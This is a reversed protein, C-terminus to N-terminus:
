TNGDTVESNEGQSSMMGAGLLGGASFLAQGKKVTEKVKPTLKIALQPFDDLESSRNGKMMTVTGISSNDIKGVVKNIVKPLVKDYYTKLGQNNWRKAHIIGASFAISDYGEEEAKAMLRKITLGTWKNTDTVFPAKPIDSFMESHTTHLKQMIDIVDKTEDVGIDLQKGDKYIKGQAKADGFMNYLVHYTNKTPEFGKARVLFYDGYPVQEGDILITYNNLTKISKSTLDDIKSQIIKAENETPKFGGQRGQQGWDSQIEEVFFVKSGDDAIRDTHRISALINADEYHATEYFDGEKSNDLILKTETYNEGTEGQDVTYDKWRAGDFYANIDGNEQAHMEAQIEAENFSYIGVDEGTVNDSTDLRNQWNKSDERTRFISYGVSDNGTITYGTNDDTYIRIPDAYYEDLAEQMARAETMPPDLDTKMENFDDMIESTRNTFYDDGYAEDITMTSLLQYGGNNVDDEPHLGEKRLDKIYNDDRDAGSRSNYFDMEKVTEDDMSTEEVVRIRNDNIHQEIETKTIKDKSLVEDLGLWDLEDQKVGAKLLMGKFQQGSGKEQKLKKTEELAQSYFGLYDQDVKPTTEDLAKGIKSLGEAIPKTPDVGMNLTTGTDPNNALYNDAEKGAGVLMRRGGELVSAMGATARDGLVTGAVGSFGAEVPDFGDQVKAEVKVNQRALNDAMTLFGAEAGTAMSAKTPASLITNKLLEKFGMRTMQQGAYKGAVGIGFTALVGLNFPDTAMALAGKGFNKLTMGDRDATEMLYYMAKAVEPPANNLKATNFALATFNYDFANMFNAGWTAYAEANELQANEVPYGAQTVGKYIERTETSGFPKANPNLYNYLMTSASIWNPDNLQSGEPMNQSMSIVEPSALGFKSEEGLNGEIMVHPLPLYNSRFADYDNAEVTGSEVGTPYEGWNLPAEGIGEKTEGTIPHKYVFSNPVNRVAELEAYIKNFEDM